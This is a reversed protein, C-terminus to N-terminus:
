ESGGDSAPRKPCEFSLNCLPNEAAARRKSAECSLHEDRGELFRQLHRQCALEQSVRATEIQAKRSQESYAGCGAIWFGLAIAVVGLFSGWLLKDSRNM